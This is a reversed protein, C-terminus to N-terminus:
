NVANQHHQALMHHGVWQAKVEDPITALTVKVQRQKGANALTYTFVSGPKMEAYLNELADSKESLNHGNLAVLVDGVQIGAKEAPSGAIVKNIVKQDQENKNIEVGMWGKHAFKEIMGDLCEQASASCRDGGAFVLTTSALLFCAALYKKM